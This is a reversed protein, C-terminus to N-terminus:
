EVQMRTRKHGLLSEYLSFLGRNLSDATYERLFRARGAAGMAALDAASLPRLAAAFDAAYYPPV